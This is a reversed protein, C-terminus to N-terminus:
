AKHIVKQTHGYKIICIFLEKLISVKKKLCKIGENSRNFVGSHFIVISARLLDKSRQRLESYFRYIIRKDISIKINM